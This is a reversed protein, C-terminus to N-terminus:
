VLRSEELEEIPIIWIIQHRSLAMFKVKYVVEGALSYLTANTVALTHENRDIEDKIREDPRVHVNGRILHTATQILVEVPLKTIVNTFIKGKDDFDNIM